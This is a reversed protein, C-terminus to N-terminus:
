GVPNSSSPRNRVSESSNKAVIASDSDMERAQHSLSEQCIIRRGSPLERWHIWAHEMWYYVTSRSVGAILITKRIPMFNAEKRCCECFFTAMIVEGNGSGSSARCSFGADFTIGVNQLEIDAKRYLLEYTLILNFVHM